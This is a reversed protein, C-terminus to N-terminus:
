LLQFQFSLNITPDENENQTLYHPIESNFIILKRPAMPIKWRGHRIRGGQYEFTISTLKEGMSVCYLCSIDPTKEYDYEWTHNHTNIGEGRKQVIGATNILVPVRDEQERYHDRIYDVIWSINKNDEVDYYNYKYYWDEKSQRKKAAYGKIINTKIIGIDLPLIDPIVDWIISQKTLIKSDM